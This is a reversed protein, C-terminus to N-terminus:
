IVGFYEKLQATVTEVESLSLVRNITLVAAISGHFNTYGVTTGGLRVAGALSGTNGSLVPAAAVGDQYLTLNTGDHTVAHIYVQNAIAASAWTIPDDNIDYNRTYYRGTNLRRFLFYEPADGFIWSNTAGAGVLASLAPGTLGDDVGDFRAVPLNNIGRFLPATTTQIYDSDAAVTRIHADTTHVSSTNDGAYSRTTGSLIYYYVLATGTTSVSGTRLSIYWWGDVLVSFLTEVFGSTITVAGTSLDINAEQAVAWGSLYVGLNRSGAGRKARFSFVYQGGAIVQTRWAASGWSSLRHQGTAADEKWETASLRVSNLTDWRTTTIDESSTILNEKNDGRTILPRYGATAQTFHRNNGSIDSWTAIADGASGSLGTPWLVCTWPLDFFNFDYKTKTKQVAFVSVDQQSLYYDDLLDSLRLGPGFSGRTNKLFVTGAGIESLVEGLQSGLGNISDLLGHVEPSGSYLEDPALYDNGVYVTKIATSKKARFVLKVVFFKESYNRM